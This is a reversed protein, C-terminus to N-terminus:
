KEQFYIVRHLYVMQKFFIYVVISTSRSRKAYQRVLQSERATSFAM